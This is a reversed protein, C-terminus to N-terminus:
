VGDRSWTGLGNQACGRHLFRVGSPLQGEAVRRIGRGSGAVGSDRGERGQLKGYANGGQRWCRPAAAAGPTVKSDNSPLGTFASPGPHRQYSRLGPGPSGPPLRRSPPLRAVSEVDPGVRCDVGAPVQADVALPHSRAGSKM